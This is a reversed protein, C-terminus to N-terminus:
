ENIFQDLNFFLDSGLDMMRGIDKHHIEHLVTRFSEMRLIFVSLSDLPTKEIINMLLYPSHTSIFFQNTEDTAIAEGLMKTFLPFTHAEPEDLLLVADRNSQIAVSFFIIRQLTESIAFYPYSYLADEVEKSIEIDSEAPKLMLRFDRSVFLDSVMKRIASNSLLVSPLNDGFPPALFPSIMRKWEKLKRYSYRRFPSDFLSGGAQQMKGDQNLKAEYLIEDGRGYSMKFVPTYAGSNVPDYSLRLNLVDTKVDVPVSFDSDYFLDNMYRFRVSSGMDELIGPSFLSLAELVNSKGTNPEGIFVNVKNCSFSVKKISKFHEITVTRVMQNTSKIDEFIISVLQDFMKNRWYEKRGRLMAVTSIRRRLFGCIIAFRLYYITCCFDGPGNQRDVM